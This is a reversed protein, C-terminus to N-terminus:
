AEGHLVDRRGVDLEAVGIALAHGQRQLQRWGRRSGLGADRRSSRAPRRYRSRRHRRADRALGRPRRRHIGHRLPLLLAHLLPLLPQLLALLLALARRRYGARDLLAQVLNAITSLSRSVHLAPTDLSGLRM